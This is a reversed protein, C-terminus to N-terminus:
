EAALFDHRYLIRRGEESLVYDVFRKAQSANASRALVGIPYRVQANLRKPIPVMKLRASSAETRYIIAADAEGMEVKSRVLRVNHELSVVHSQVSALFDRGLVLGARELVQRTYIGVPANDSGLVILSARTLDGFEEIAAPNARPVVLVLENSAFAKSDAIHGSAILENMHEQNASAFVDVLAGQEIQVRLVQSGAFSMKVEIESNAKEFAEEVSQFADTLSSAAYVVLTTKVSEGGKEQACGAAVLGVMSSTLLPLLPGFLTRRM